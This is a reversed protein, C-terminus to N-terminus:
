NSWSGAEGVLPSQASHRLLSHRRELELMRSDTPALRPEGVWLDWDPLRLPLVNARGGVIGLGYPRNQSDAM